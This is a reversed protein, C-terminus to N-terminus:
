DWLYRPMENKIKLKMEMIAKKLREPNNEQDELKMTQSTRMVIEEALKESRNDLMKSLSGSKPIIAYVLNCDLAEAVEELKKLTISKDAERKEIEGCSVPSIGIKKAVQRLSMNLAIRIANLWGKPPLTIKSFGSIEKFKKDLQEILLKRIDENM